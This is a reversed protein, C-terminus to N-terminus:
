KSETPLQKPKPLGLILVIINMVTPVFPIFVLFLDFVAGVIPFAILYAKGIHVGRRWSALIMILYCISLMITVTIGIEISEDSITDPNDLLDEGLSFFAAWRLLYTLIM